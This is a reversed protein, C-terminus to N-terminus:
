DYPIIMVPAPSHHLVSQAVPGIRLGLAPRAVRRGIILLGAESAAALLEEAANGFRLHEVVRVRPFQPRWPALAESLARGVRDEEENFGQQRLLDAADRGFVSPLSYVGVARVAAGRASAMTFAPGLLADASPGLDKLGVVIEGGAEPEGSTDECVVVVPRATHATVPLSVSGLLFGVFATHGRSGLVLLEAEDGREILRAVPSGSVVESTVELGPHRAAVDAAIEGLLREAEARDPPPAMFTPEDLWVHVLHLPLRRRVAERAAWEGATRSGTSNDVGVTIPRIM